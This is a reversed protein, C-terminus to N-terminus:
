GGSGLNSFKEKTKVTAEEFLKIDFAERRPAHVSADNIVVFAVDLAFM